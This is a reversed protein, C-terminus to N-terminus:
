APTTDSAPIPSLIPATVRRTLPWCGIGWGNLPQGEVGLHYAVFRNDKVYIRGDTNYIPSQYLPNGMVQGWHQWGTYFSHNYYDDQGAVHDPINATRDHNYPGSQYKTHIYEVVLGRLWTGYKLKLEAGLMIDKLAYMFYRNDKKVNWEEGGGYGNYDILFM